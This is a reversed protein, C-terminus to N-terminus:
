YKRLKSKENSTLSDYLEDPSEMGRAKDARKKSEKVDDGFVNQFLEAAYQRTVDLNQKVNVFLEDKTM